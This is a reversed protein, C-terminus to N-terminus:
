SISASRVKCVFETLSKTQMRLTQWLFLITNPPCNYHWPKHCQKYKKLQRAHMKVKVTSISLHIMIKVKSTAIKLFWNIVFIISKKQNCGLKMLKIIKNDKKRKANGPWTPLIQPIIAPKENIPMQSTRKKMM